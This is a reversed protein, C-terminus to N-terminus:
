GLAAFLVEEPSFTVGGLTPELRRARALADRAAAYDAEQAAEISLCLWATWDGVFATLYAELEARRAGERPVRALGAQHELRLAEVELQVAGLVGARTPLDLSATAECLAPWAESFVATPDRAVVLLHCRDALARAHALPGGDHPDHLVDRAAEHLLVSVEYDGHRPARRARPTVELGKVGVVGEPAPPVVAERPETSM